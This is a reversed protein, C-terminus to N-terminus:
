RVPEMVKEEQNVRMKETFELYFRSYEDQTSFFTDPNLIKDLQRTIEEVEEKSYYRARADAIFFPAGQFQSAPAKFTRWSADDPNIRLQLQMIHMADVHIKQQGYAVSFSLCVFLFALVKKM